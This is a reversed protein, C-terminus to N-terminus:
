ATARPCMGYMHIYARMVVGDGAVGAVDVAVAGASLGGRACRGPGAVDGTGSASLVDCGRGRFRRELSSSSGKHLLIRLRRLCSWVGRVDASIIVAVGFVLAGVGLLGCCGCLGEVSAPAVLWASRVWSALVGVRFRLLLRATSTTEGGAPVGTLRAFCCDCASAVPSVAALAWTRFCGVGRGSVSSSDALCRPQLARRVSVDAEVSEGGGARISTTRTIAVCSGARAFRAACCSAPSAVRLEGRRVACRDCAGVGAWSTRSKGAPIGPCSAAGLRAGDGWCVGSGFRARDLLSSARPACSVRRWLAHSTMCPCSGM